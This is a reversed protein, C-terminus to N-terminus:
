GGKQSWDVLIGNTKKFILTMECPPEVALAFANQSSPVLDTGPDDKVIWTALFVPQGEVVLIRVPAGWASVAQRFTMQELGANLTEIFQREGQPACAVLLLVTCLIIHRSKM